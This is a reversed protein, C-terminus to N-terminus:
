KFRTPIGGIIWRKRQGNQEQENLNCQLCRTFENRISKGCNICTHYKSHDKGAGRLAIILRAEKETQYVRQPHWFLDRCYYSATSKAISFVQSIEGLSCGDRKAERILQIRASPLKTFLGDKRIITKM